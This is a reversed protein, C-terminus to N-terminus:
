EREPHWTHVTEGLSANDAAISCKPRMRAGVSVRVMTAMALELSIVSVWLHARHPSPPPAHAV